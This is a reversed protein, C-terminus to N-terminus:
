ETLKRGKYPCKSSSLCGVHNISCEYMCLRWQKEQTALNYRACGARCPSGFKSECYGVRAFRCALWESCWDAIDEIIGNNDVLGLPDIKNIPNNGVYVYPNLEQPFQLPFGSISERCATAETHSIGKLIPTFNIFIEINRHNM